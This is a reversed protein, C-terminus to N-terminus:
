PGKPWHTHEMYNIYVLFILTCLLPMELCFVCLQKWLWPMSLNSCFSFPLLSHSVPFVPKVSPKNVKLVIHPKKSSTM